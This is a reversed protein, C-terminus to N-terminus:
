KEEPLSSLLGLCPMSKAPYLVMIGMSARFESPIPLTGTVLHYATAGLSYLDSRADTAQGRVQEPSSYYPSLAKAGTLTAGQQKSIGFDLLVYRGKPTRKINDPKIDRHIINIDHLQGLDRLVVRLFHEVQSPQWASQTILEGVTQGEVFEMVLYTRPGDSWIDYIEPIFPFQRAYQALINAEAEVQSQQTANTATIIKIAYRRNLRVDKAEYVIGFGGQGLLGILRYKAQLLQPQGCQPCNNAYANLPQNCFFCQHVAM